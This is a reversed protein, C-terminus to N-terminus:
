LTDREILGDFSILSHDVEMQLSKEINRKQIGFDSVYTLVGSLMLIVLLWVGMRLKWNM